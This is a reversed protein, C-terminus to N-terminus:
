VRQVYHSLIRFMHVPLFRYMMGEDYGNAYDASIFCVYRQKSKMCDFILVDELVEHACLYGLGNVHLM